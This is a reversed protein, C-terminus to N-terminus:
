IACLQGILQVILARAFAPILTSKYNLLALNIPFLMEAFIREYINQLYFKKNLNNIQTVLPVAM